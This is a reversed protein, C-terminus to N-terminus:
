IIHALVERLNPVAVSSSFLLFDGRHMDILVEIYECVLPKRQLGLFCRMLLSLDCFSVQDSPHGVGLGTERQQFYVSSPCTPLFDPSQIGSEGVTGQM